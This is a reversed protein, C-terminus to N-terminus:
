KLFNSNSARVDSSSPFFKCISYNQQKFFNPPQYTNAKMIPVSEPLMSVHTATPMMCVDFKESTKKQLTM